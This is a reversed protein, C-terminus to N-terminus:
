IRCCSDIREEIEEYTSNQSLVIESILIQKASALMKREASSLGKMDDRTMLRKIVGAVEYLDGSKLKELNERYRKNWSTSEVTAASSFSDIVNEATQPSIIPRIGVNASTEVPIKVTVGHKPTKLIYYKRLVGSIREEAIAEIICGGHMPHAIKDGVNYM